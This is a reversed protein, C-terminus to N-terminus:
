LADFDTKVEDVKIAEEDRLWLSRDDDYEIHLIVRNMLAGLYFNIGNDSAVYTPIGRFVWYRCESTLSFSLGFKTELAQKITLVEQGVQSPPLQCKLELSEVLKLNRTLSVTAEKFHRFPKELDIVQEYEGYVSITGKRTPKVCPEGMTIGFITFGKEREPDIVNVRGCGMKSLIGDLAIKAVEDGQEAAKRYWKAAEEYSQTVGQGEAYMTGLLFQANADGQEAAKRYWKVAKEYSQTVGQGGAYMLGLNRQARMSGQEAAKRYWKAAEEYSQTVGQGNTYAIGLNCQAQADGQEAAKRFWKVAEEYSQTVVQGNAYMVGLNGQANADGQEAAKRYWKVAEEESKAVGQGNAYMVGLNSQANVHGQEAAKCFWKAAKEDSQAVGRGNAYMVGLNFQAQADGHEAAKCFWKAAEEDSKSVGRGNAYMVGLNCQAQADGQEARQRLSTIEVDKAFLSSPLTLLGLCIVTLIIKM